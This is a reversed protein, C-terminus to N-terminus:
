IGEAALLEVLRQKTPLIREERIGYRALFEYQKTNPAALWREWVDVGYRGRIGRAEREIIDATM